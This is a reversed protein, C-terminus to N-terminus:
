KGVARLVYRGDFYAEHVSCSPVAWLSIPARWSITDKASRELLYFSSFCGDTFDWEGVSRSVQECKKNPSQIIDFTRYSTPELRGGNKKGPQSTKEECLQCPISFINEDLGTGCRWIGRWLSRSLWLCNTIAITAYRSTDYPAGTKRM